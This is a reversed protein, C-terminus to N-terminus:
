KKSSNKMGYLGGLYAFPLFIFLSAIIVWMPHGENILSYIGFGLAIGGVTVAKAIKKETAVCAAVIGGTFCGLAYIFLIM